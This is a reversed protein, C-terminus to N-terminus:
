RLIIKKSVRKNRTALTVFYVGKALNSLNLQAEGKDKNIELLNKRLRGCADFLCVCSLGPRAFEYRITIKGNAPNPYVVFSLRKDPSAIREEALRTLDWDTIKGYIDFGQHRRNDTWAFGIRNNNAVVSQGITWQHEYYFFDTENILANTGIRTGNTLFRQAFIEPDGDGYRWDCWVVIFRGDGTMNASPSYQDEETVDDNVRFNNGIRQGYSNFIQGYIDTHGNREDEWVVVFNGLPDIAAAPYGQFSTGADDDIRFNAGNPIGFLNYRQGYINFNGDRDDMWVVIFDGARNQAVSAYLQSGIGIDNVRFNPGLPNGNHDYRQAFIDFSNDERSDMWVIVSNGSSDMAVWPYWQHANGLDDNVKLNNNIRNGRTDFRQCYIDYSQNRGDTWAVLFNGTFDAGVSSYFQYADGSDDNIRFNNGLFNGLSDFRQGYIDTRLLENREDEWVVIQNGKGDIAIMSVRQQSSASDDNVKFNNGIPGGSSNFHQAYIDTHLNRGDSWALWFDSNPTIAIAPSTQNKEGADDNVRFSSGLPNGLNDFRRCYIDYNSNRYDAWAIIFAGNRSVAVVPSNQARESIDNVMFNVGIRNGSSNYRQAYIDNLSDYRQDEWTVIFDGNPAVAVSPAWQIRTGLDDNVRFNNGQPIALNNYRQGYIDWNGNRGDMWVVVFNGLSDCAISAGYQTGGLDDNVKFNAGIPTGNASFRQGYIDGWDNRWDEWVIIFEGDPKVIAAAGRQDQRSNDDNVRFNTDLWNGNNDYRQVYIDSNCDRRDEWAAIFSGSRHMAIAPDGQWKMTADRNLRFNMGLPIGNATFRQAFADADGNRFEYWVIVFNGLGDVAISVGDQNSGGIEDDNILFDSRIVSDTHHIIFKSNRVKFKNLIKQVPDFPVEFPFIVFSLFTIAFRTVKM